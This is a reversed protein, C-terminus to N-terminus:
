YLEFNKFQLFYRGRERERERKRARVLRVSLLVRTSIALVIAFKQLPVLVEKDKDKKGGLKM